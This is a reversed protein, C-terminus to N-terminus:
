EFSIISNLLPRLVAQSRRARKFKKKAPATKHDMFSKRKTWTEEGMVKLAPRELSSVVFDVDGSRSFHVLGAM